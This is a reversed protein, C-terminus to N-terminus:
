KQLDLRCTTCSNLSNLQKELGTSLAPISSTHAAVHLISKHHSNVHHYKTSHHTYFISLASLFIYVVFIHMLSCFICFVFFLSFLCSFIISKQLGGLTTWRRFGQASCKLCTWWAQLPVPQLSPGPQFLLAFLLQVNRTKSSEVWVTGIGLIQGWRM